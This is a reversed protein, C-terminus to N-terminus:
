RNEQVASQEVDMPTANTKSGASRANGNITGLPCPGATAVSLPLNHLDRDLRHDTETIGAIPTQLVTKIEQVTPMPFDTVKRGTKREYRENVAQLEVGRHDKISESVFCRQHVKSIIPALYELDMGTWTELETPWCEMIPVKATFASVFYIAAACAAPAIDGVPTHLLVLESFYHMLEETQSDVRVMLIFLRLFDLQTAGRLRGKAVCLVAGMQRVVEEYFYTNDTLWAAERITIVEDEVFRAAIVMCAIGLLQLTKRRVPCVSLFLDVLGVTMYLTERTFRKLDAVEVLWDVLIYRMKGSGDLDAQERTMPVHDDITKRTVQNVYKIAEARSTGAVNGKAYETCLAVKVSWSEGFRHGRLNRISELLYGPDQSSRAKAMKFLEYAAEGCGASAAISFWKEAEAKQEAGPQLSLTKAVCFTIGCFKNTRDHKHEEALAKMSNFICAKSCGESSWPPRFLLWSFPNAPGCLQEARILMEGALEPSSVAGEGYLCAVGLKINAAYNNARAARQYIAANGPTAEHAPIGDITESAETAAVPWKDTFSTTSQVFNSEALYQFRRCTQSCLPNM